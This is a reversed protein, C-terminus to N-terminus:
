ELCSYIFKRAQELAEITKEQNTLDLDNLWKLANKSDMVHCMIEMAKENSYYCLREYAIEDLENHYKTLKKIVKQLTVNVRDSDYSDKEALIADVMELCDFVLKQRGKYVTKVTNDNKETTSGEEALASNTSEEVVTLRIGERKTYLYLAVAHECHYGQCGWYCNCYITIKGDNNLDIRPSFTKRITVDGHISCESVALNGIAKKTSNKEGKQKAEYDFYSLVEDQDFDHISPETIEIRNGKFTPGTLKSNEMISFPELKEISHPLVLSELIDSYVYAFNKLTTIGESLEVSKIGYWETGKEILYDYKDWQKEFPNVYDTTYGDGTQVFQDKFNYRRTPEFFWDAESKRDLIWTGSKQTIFGYGPESYAISLEDWSLRYSAVMKLCPVNRLIDSIKVEDDYYMQHDITFEYIDPTPTTQVKIMRQSIGAIYEVAKMVQEKFGRFTAGCYCSDINLEDKISRDDYDEVMVKEVAALVIKVSEYTGQTKDFCSEAYDIVRQINTEKKYHEVDDETVDVALSEDKIMANFSLWIECGEYGNIKRKEIIKVDDFRINQTILMWQMVKAIEKPLFGVNMGGSSKVLLEYHGDFLMSEIELTDDESLVDTDDILQYSIKSIIGIGKDIVEVTNRIEEDTEANNKVFQGKLEKVMQHYRFKNPIDGDTDKVVAIRPRDINIGEKSCYDNLSEGYYKFFLRSISDYLHRYEFYQGLMLESEIQAAVIESRKKDFVEKPPIGKSFDSYELESDTLQIDMESAIIVAAMHKCYCTVSDPCTCKMEAHEVNRVIRVHYLESGLVDAEVGVEFFVISSVAGSEALEKGRELRKEEFIRKLFKNRLEEPTKVKVIKKKNAEKKVDSQPKVKEKKKNDKIIVDAESKAAIIGQEKFYKALTMGFVEVSHNALTKLNGALDSNKEKLQLMSSYPSDGARRKLEEVIEEGIVAQPRGVGRETNSNDVSGQVPKHRVEKIEVKSEIKPVIESISESKFAAEELQKQKAKVSDYAQRTEELSAQYILCDNRIREAQEKTTELETRNYSVVKKLEALEEDIERLESDRADLYIKKRKGVQEIENSKDVIQNSLSEILTALEKKKGIALFFTKGLAVEAENKRSEILALEEQLKFVLADCEACKGEYERTTNQRKCDVDKEFLRLQNQAYELREEIEAIESVNAKIVEESDALLKEYKKVLKDERDAELVINARNYAEWYLKNANLYNGLAKFDRASVRLQEETTAEEYKKVASLYSEHIDVENMCCGMIIETM